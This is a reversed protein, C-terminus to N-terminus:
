GGVRGEGWRGELMDWSHHCQGCGECTQGKKEKRVASVMAPRQGLREGTRAGGLPHSEYALRVM